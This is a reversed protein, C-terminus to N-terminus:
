AWSVIAAIMIPLLRLNNDPDPDLVNTGVGNVEFGAIARIAFIYYGPPFILTFM